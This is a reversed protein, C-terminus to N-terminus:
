AAAVPAPPNVRSSGFWHDIDLIQLDPQDTSDSRDNLDFYNYQDGSKDYVQLLCYSTNTGDSQPLNWNYMRFRGDPSKLKGLIKLSDFPYNFSGAMRVAQNLTKHFAINLTIRESDSSSITILRAISKLSDEAQKLSPHNQTFVPIASGALYLLIFTTILRKLMFLTAPKLLVLRINIIM